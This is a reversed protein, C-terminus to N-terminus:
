SGCKVQVKIKCLVHERKKFCCVKMSDFRILGVDKVASKWLANCLLGGVFHFLIHINM